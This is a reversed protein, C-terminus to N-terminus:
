TKIIQQQLMFLIMRALFMCLTLEMLYVLCMNMVLGYDEKICIMWRRNQLIIFLFNSSLKIFPIWCRLWLHRKKKSIIIIITCNYRGQVVGADDVKFLCQQASPPLWYFESWGKVYYRHAKGIANPGEMQFTIKRVCEMKDVDYFLLQPMGSNKIIIYEREDKEIVTPYWGIDTDEDIPFKLWKDAPRLEVIDLPEMDSSSNKPHDSCSLSIGFLAIFLIWRYIMSM